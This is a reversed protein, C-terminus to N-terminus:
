TSSKKVGRIVFWLIFLVEGITMIEFVDTLQNFDPSVIKVFSDLLYGFGAIILIVGIAKPFLDFKYALWGLPFLWLGWFIMSIQMGQFYLELLEIVKDPNDLHAQISLSITENLMSIPVSVLALILMLTSVPKDYKRFLEYLLFPIIIFLLQTLLRGAIGVRFLFFNENLNQATTQPDSFDILTSPIYMLSFFGLVVWVPYLIRLYLVAKAQNLENNM